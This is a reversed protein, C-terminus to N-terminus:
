KLKGKYEEIEKMRELVKDIAASFYSDNHVKHDLHKWVELSKEFSKYAEDIYGLGCLIMGREAYFEPLNPMEKIAREVILLMKEDPYKLDRMSNLVKHYLDGRGNIIDVDSNLAKLAHLLAKESNGLGAYCDALAIDHQPQHGIMEIERNIIELNRLLKSKIIQSSYGTHYMALDDDSFVYKLKGDIINTINEHILGRYRLYNVNKFIRLNWGRNIIENNIDIDFRPIIIAEYNLFKKISKELKEPKVFFEDADLFIIWDGNSNDIALNRPTSFDDNWVYNLIKANYGEAIEITRDTSGTDVLIIEDVANILSDISRKLNNEENKVIYCASIKIQSRSKIKKSSKIKKM